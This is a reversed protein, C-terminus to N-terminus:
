YRFPSFISLNNIYLKQKRWARGWGEDVPREGEGSRGGGSSSGLAKVMAEMTGEPDAESDPASCGGGGKSEAEVGAGGSPLKM